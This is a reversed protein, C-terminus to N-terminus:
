LVLFNVIYFVIVPISVLLENFPYDFLCPNANGPLAGALLSMAGFQRASQNAMSQGKNM